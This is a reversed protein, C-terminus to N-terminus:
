PYIDARKFFANNKKIGYQCRKEVIKKKKTKGPKDGEKQISCRNERM